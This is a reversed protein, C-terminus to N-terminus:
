LVHTFVQKLGPIFTFAINEHRVASEAQGRMGHHFRYTGGESTFSLKPLRAQVLVVPGQLQMATNDDLGLYRAADLPGIIQDGVREVLLGHVERPFGDAVFRLRGGPRLLPRYRGPLMATLRAGAHESHVSVVPMGPEVLQGARVRVDGVTGAAPARLVQRELSLRALDRRSRLSVMSERAVGDAPNALLKALQDALEREVTELEAAETSAIMRVLAQGKRVEEGPAVEVSAVVAPRPATIENLGDVFVVAPGAAHEDIQGAFAYYLGVALATVLVWQTAILSRPTLRLVDGRAGGQRQYDIAERRFLGAAKV